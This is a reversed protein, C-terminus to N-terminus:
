KQSNFKRKLEEAEKHSLTSNNQKRIIGDRKDKINSRSVFVIILAVSIITILTM